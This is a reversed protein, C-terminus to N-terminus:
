VNMSHISFAKVYGEPDKPDFKVGDFLTEPDANRGGHVVGLEKMAEAYLDGRMVRKAVAAYDPAQPLMRPESRYGDQQERRTAALAFDRATERQGIKIFRTQAATVHALASVAPIDLVDLGPNGLSEGFLLRTEPRIAARWADFTAM